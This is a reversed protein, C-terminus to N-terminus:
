KAPRRTNEQAASFMRDRSRSSVGLAASSLNRIRTWTRARGQPQAGPFRRSMAPGTLPPIRRGGLRRSMRADRAADWQYHRYLEVFRDAQDDEVTRLLNWSAGASLVLPGFARHIGLTAINWEAQQSSAHSPLSWVQRNALELDLQWHTGPRWHAGFALEYGLDEDPRSFRTVYATRVHFRKGDLRAGISGWGSEEIRTELSPEMNLGGSVLGVPLAEMDRSLNVLGFLAGEATDSLNVLGMQTGRVKSGINVLGMQAGRVQRAINVLGMQAGTISGTTVSVLSMQAGRFNPAYSVLGCQSGAFDGRSISALSAQFGTWDGGIWGVTSFQAGKGGSRAVAGFDGVQLGYLTSDAIAAAGFQAGRVTGAQALGISGQWGDVGRHAKAIAGSLQIGRVQAAEGILLDLSVNNYAKPSREGNISWPPLVGINFPIADLAGGHAVRALISDQSSFISGEPPPPAVLSDAGSPAYLLRAGPALDIRRIRRGTSDALAIRWSGAPVALSVKRGSPSLDAVIHGLSDSVEIQGPLDPPFELAATSQSLDTLVVDGSGSLDLDFEPHQPGVRTTSTKEVTQQYAYRYAELLTVKSDGDADAAGRLGTLFARTFFSGRLQDSEQSAEEARSSTLFAQGRLRDAGEIRFAERRVGGKARLAAGSACADLVALKVEAPSAALVHRLRSWPLPQGGLLLGEEDSHGSYYVMLEVRNGSDRSRAMRGSLDSLESLFRGTDADLLLTTGGRPVGGLSGMVSAVSRADDASFRLRAKGPGGDDSAAALLFRRLPRGSDSPIASSFSLLLILLANM